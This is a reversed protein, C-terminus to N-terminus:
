FAFVADREARARVPPKLRRRNAVDVTGPFLDALYHKIAMYEFVGVPAGPDLEVMIDIDSTPKAEGRALSGFVAARRVGRRRLESEHARLTAIIRNRDLGSSNM